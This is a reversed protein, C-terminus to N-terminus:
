FNSLNKKTNELLFCPLLYTCFIKSAGWCSFLSLSFFALFFMVFFNYDLNYFALGELPKQINPHQRGM